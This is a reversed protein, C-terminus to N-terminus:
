AAFIVQRTRLIEYRRFPNRLAPKEVLQVKRGLLAALEDEIQVLDFLSHKADREFEVLADVDSEPRFDERLVSGFLSLERIRYRRCFEAVKDSPIAIQVKTIM